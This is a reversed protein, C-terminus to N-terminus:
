RCTVGTVRRHVRQKKVRGRELTLTVTDIWEPCSKAPFEYRWHGRDLCQPLGHKEILEAQTLGLLNPQLARRRVGQIPSTCRPLLDFDYQPPLAGGSSDGADRAAVTPKSVPTAAGDAASAIRPGADAPLTKAPEPGPGVPGRDGGCAVPIALAMAVLWRM